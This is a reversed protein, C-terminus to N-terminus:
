RVGDGHHAAGAGVAHGAGPIAARDPKGRETLEGAVPATACMEALQREPVGRAGLVAPPRRGAQDARDRLVEAVEGDGVDGGGRVEAEVCEADVAGRVGGQAGLDAADDRRALRGSYGTRIMKTSDFPTVVRSSM